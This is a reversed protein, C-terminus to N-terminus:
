VFDPSAHVKKQQKVLEFGQKQMEQDHKKVMENYMQRLDNIVAIQDFERPSKPQFSNKKRFDDLQQNAQVVLAEKQAIIKEKELLRTENQRLMQRLDMVAKQATALDNSIPVREAVQQPQVEAVLQSSSSETSEASSVENLHCSSQQPSEKQAVKVEFPWQECNQGTQHPSNRIPAARAQRIIAQVKDYTSPLLGAGSQMCATSDRDESARSFPLPASAPRLGRLARASPQQQLVPFVVPMMVRQLNQRLAEEVVLEAHQPDDRTEQVDQKSTPLLAESTAPPPSPVVAFSEALELESEPQEGTLEIEIYSQMGQPSSIAELQNGCQHQNQGGWEMEIIDATGAAKHMDGYIDAIGMDGAFVTPMLWECENMAANGKDSDIASCYELITADDLAGERMDECNHKTGVHESRDEANCSYAFPVGDMCAVKTKGDDISTENLAEDGRSPEDLVEPQPLLAKRQTLSTLEPQEVAVPQEVAFAPAPRPLLQLPPVLATHNDDEATSLFYDLASMVGPKRATDAQEASSRDLDKTNLFAAWVNEWWVRRPSHSPAERGRFASCAEPLKRRERKRSVLEDTLSQAVAANDRELAGVAGLNGTHAAMKALAVHPLRHQRPFFARCLFSAGPIRM